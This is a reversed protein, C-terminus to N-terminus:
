VSTEPMISLHNVLSTPNGLFTLGMVWHDFLFDFKVWTINVETYYPNSLFSFTDPALWGNAICPSLLLLSRCYFDLHTLVARTGSICTPFCSSSLSPSSHNTYVLFIFIFFLSRKFLFILFDCKFESLHIYSLFIHFRKRLKRLMSIENSLLSSNFIPNM